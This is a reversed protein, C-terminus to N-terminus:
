PERLESIRWTPPSLTAVRPLHISTNRLQLETYLYMLHSDENDGFQRGLESMFGSACTERQLHDEGALMEEEVPALRVDHGNRARINSYQQDLTAQVNPTGNARCNGASIGRLV